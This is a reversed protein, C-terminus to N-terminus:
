GGLDAKMAAIVNARAIDSNRRDFAQGLPVDRDRRTPRGRWASTMQAGAERQAAQVYADYADAVPQSGHIRLWAQHFNIGSKVASIAETVQRRADASGDRRRVRYPGELYDEVAQLAEAYTRARQDRRTARQQVAYGIVAVVAAILAAAVAAIITSGDSWTFPDGSPRSAALHTAAALVTLGSM